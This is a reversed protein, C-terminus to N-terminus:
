VPPQLLPGPPSDAVAEAVSPYTRLVADAGSVRLLRRVGASPAALRLDGEAHAHLLVNLATSDAFTVGSMEAVTCVGHERDGGALAERLVEVTDLDLEGELVVVEAGSEVYRAAVAARPRGSGAQPSEQM